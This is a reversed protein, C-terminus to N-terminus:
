SSRSPTKFKSFRGFRGLALAALLLGLALVLVPWDGVRVYPTMGTMGQVSVNLSGETLPQLEGFVTGHPNIAATMGTNTARLMPKGTELARMRSIQLHQPLALSDGFWAVNSVNILINAYKAQQRIQEGFLDEYCINFAINQNRVPIAKQPIEGRTFDGLPMRMLQMFWHLGNPTFEGFPVLHSKNYRLAPPAQNPHAPDISLQAQPTQTIVSNYYRGEGEYIPVGYAIATNLSLSDQNLRKVLTDPLEDFFKPFATEPLVILDTSNAPTQEILKMYVEATEDFRSEIFKIDQSINGQLLRVRLPTSAPQTWEHRGLGMGLLPLAIILLIPRVNSRFQRAALLALTAAIFACLLGIGYVGIVAAFGSLPGGVHAYGSALWPFGTFILGRAMESLAWFAPFVICFHAPRLNLKQILGVSLGCALAPYLALYACLALTALGAILPNMEGYTHLSIFIWSIGTVFWGLGFALGIRAAPWASTGSRCILAVLGALAAIELPWASDDMFGASHLAGLLLALLPNLPFRAPLRLVLM